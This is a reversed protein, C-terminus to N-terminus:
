ILLNGLIAEIVLMANRHISAIELSKTSKHPNKLIDMEPINGSEGFDVVLM